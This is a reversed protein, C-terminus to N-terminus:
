NVATSGSVQCEGYDEVHGLSDTLLALVPRERGQELICLRDFVDRTRTVQSPQSNLLTLLRDQIDTDPCALIM